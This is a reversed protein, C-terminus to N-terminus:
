STLFGVVDYAKFSVGGTWVKITKHMKTLLFVGDPSWAVQGIFGQGPHALVKHLSLQQREVKWIIARRDWSGTALWKGDPSFQLHRVLGHHEDLIQTPALKKLAPMVIAVRPPRVLYASADTYSRMRSSQLTDQRGGPLMITSQQRPTPNAPKFLNSMMQSRGIQRAAAQFRAKPTPPTPSTPSAFDVAMPSDPLTLNSLHLNREQVPSGRVEVGELITSPVGPSATNKRSPISRSTSESFRRAHGVPKGTPTEYMPLSESGNGAGGSASAAMYGESEEYGSSCDSTTRPRTPFVGSSARYLSTGARSLKGSIAKVHKPPVKGFWSLGTKDLFSRRADKFYDALWRSGKTRAFVFRELAFWIAVALLASSTFSTFITACSTVLRKQNSSYTFCVLGASFAM